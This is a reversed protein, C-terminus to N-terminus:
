RHGRMLEGLNSQRKTLRVPEQLAKWFLLQEDRSLVLDPLLQLRCSKDM